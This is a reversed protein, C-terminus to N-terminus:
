ERVDAVSYDQETVQKFAEKKFEDTHQKSKM